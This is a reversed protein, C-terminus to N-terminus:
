AEAIAVAIAILVIPVSLARFVLNVRRSLRRQRPLPSFLGSDGQVFTMLFVVVGVIALILSSSMM